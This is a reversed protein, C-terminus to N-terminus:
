RISLVRSQRSLDYVRRQLSQTKSKSVSSGSKFVVTSQVHEEVSAISLTRNQNQDQILNTADIFLGFGSTASQLGTFIGAIGRIGNQQPFDFFLNAGPVYKAIADFEKIAIAVGLMKSNNNLSLYVRSNGGAQFAVIDQVGAVPIATGNPLNGPDTVGQAGSAKTLNIRALLMNKGQLTRQMTLSGYPHGPDNPDVIPLTIMPFMMAGSNIEAGMEVMLDGTDNSTVLKLNNVLNSGISGGCATLMSALSLSTVALSLRRIVHTSALFM